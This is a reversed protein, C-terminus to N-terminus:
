SSTNTSTMPKATGRRRRAVARDTIDGPPGRAVGTGHQPGDARRSKGMGSHRAARRFQGARRHARRSQPDQQHAKAFGNSTSCLGCCRCSCAPNPSSRRVSRAPPSSSSSGHRIRADAARRSPCGPPASIPAPAAGKPLSPGVPLPAVDFDLGDRECSHRTDGTVAWRSRRRAPRSCTLRRCRSCRPHTLRSRTSTPWTPTSSCRRWSRTTTSISTPRTRGRAHVVARRQELRVARGLLVLCLHQRLGM